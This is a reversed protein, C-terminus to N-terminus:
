RARRPPPKRRRDEEAAGLPDFGIYVVYTELIDRPPLPFALGEEIHTFPVNTQGENVVVPVRHLKTVITKQETGQQVVAVRLPVTLQGPGGAPGVIVRGQIGVKMSISRGIVACERAARTFSTQYRVSLASPEQGPANVILTSAGQRIDLAPCDNEALATTAAAQASQPSTTGFLSSFRETLPVSGPNTPSSTGFLGSSSSCGAVALALACLMLAPARVRRCIPSHESQAMTEPRECVSQAAKYCGSRPLCFAAARSIM